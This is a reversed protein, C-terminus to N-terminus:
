PKVEAMQPLKTTACANGAIKVVMCSEGHRFSLREVYQWSFVGADSTSNAAGIDAGLYIGSGLKTLKCASIQINLGYNGFM